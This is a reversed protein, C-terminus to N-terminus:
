AVQDRELLLEIIDKLPVSVQVKVLARSQGRHVEKIRL